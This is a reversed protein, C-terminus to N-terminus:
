DTLYSIKELTTLFLPFPSRIFESLNLPAFAAINSMSWWIPVILQTREAGRSSILFFVTTSALAALAKFM